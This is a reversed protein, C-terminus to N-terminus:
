FYKSILDVKSTSGLKLCHNTTNSYLSTYEFLGKLISFNACDKGPISSKEQINWPVNQQVRSFDQQICFHEVSVRWTQRLHYASSIPGM